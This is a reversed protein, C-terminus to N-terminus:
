VYGIQQNDKQNIKCELTELGQKLMNIDIEGQIYRNFLVRQKEDDSM